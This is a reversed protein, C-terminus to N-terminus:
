AAPFALPLRLTFASGVGEKSEVTIQGHMQEALRQSIALGLGAGGYRRTLRSDVQRFEEFILPLAGPAIGIGTDRVVINADSATATVEVTIGGTDTFKVANGVLNLLIQRLRLPDCQIRPLRAPLHVEFTLAKDAIMPAIDQQVQDLIEPLDVPEVALDLRGAEMRTLDLLQEILTVMRGASLQIANVDERQEPTLSGSPGHLLFHAYGLVAQLPTRLEHSMMALFQTKARVGAQAAELAVQLALEHLKRETADSLVGVFHTVAGSADRVAAISLDNWFPSGDRRYNLLTEFSDSQTELEVRLREVVEPDTDPGQLFRCNRGLVASREYGTLATFAPNIDVIPNDPQTPDTIVIGNRTADLARDRLRLADQTQRLATLDRSISSIAVIGGHADRIPFLTISVPIRRGDRTLRIAEQEAVDEGQWVRLISGSIDDDAEPTRLMVVNRGIAEHAPYGYIQEAGRNWSLIRGARDVSLIGDAASEVIAALRAQMAEAEVHETIDQMTGLLAVAVGSPDRIADCYDRIWRVEGDKRIYRYDASFPTQAAQSEAFVAAVRDHDEPHVFTLWHATRHIAEEVTFGTILEYRPSFYRPTQEDDAELLYVVLPLQEVLTRFTAESVQLDHLFKRQDSVNRVFIALGDESPYLRVEFWGDFPPYYLELATPKGDRLVQQYFDRVQTERATPFAEWASQGLLDDRTRGLIQEMAPNVYTFRWDRDLAYFGDSIRELVQQMRLHTATFEAEAAKRATIDQIQSLFYRPTGDAYRLLSSCLQVTVIAGDKRIYRKEMEFSSFEGALARAMLDGNAAVDDPHTIDLLTTGLLEEESYGLIVCSARNVRLVQQDPRVIAMGIAADEFAVRFREESAALASEAAKRATIDETQSVFYRPAGDADRVLSGRLHGWVIHGDRHLYRKELEYKSTGGALAVAIADRNAQRDDPHTWEWIDMSILEEETYGLMTCMAPNIQVANLDPDSLVLGIPANAFAVRFLELSTALAAQTAKRATIDRAIISTAVIQGAADWIPSITLSVEIRRGDKTHRVAELGQISEGRMLRSLRAEVAEVDEPPVLVTRPQGLIEAATYGYLREAAPNWDTIIGDITEGVIADASAHVIAAMRQLALQDDHNASTRSVPDTNSVRGM